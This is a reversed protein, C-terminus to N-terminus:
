HLLHLRPGHAFLELTAHKPSEMGILGCPAEALRLSVDLLSRGGQKYADLLYAFDSMSGLVRRNATKAVSVETMQGLEAATMDESVGIERLVEGLALALRLSLSAGDEAPLIVPLLTRESVCLIFQSSPAGLLNVYWDGLRTTSAPPREQPAMKLRALLRATARLTFVAAM